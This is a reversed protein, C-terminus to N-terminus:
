RAFLDSIREIDDEGLYVGSQVEIIQLIQNNKNSLRHIQKKEIFTSENEKLNFTKEGNIVSASGKIVVWHESRKQHRQLSISKGPNIQIRKVKFNDGEELIEFWGWPRHVKSHEILLNNHDEELTKVLEKINQSYANDMILITDSTEIARLMQVDLDALLPQREARLMEKKIDTAKQMNVKILPM